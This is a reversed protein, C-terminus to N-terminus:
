TPEISQLHRGVAIRSGLWGLGAGLGLLLLGKDSGLGYIEFRSGYLTALEGAPGALLLVSLEVLLWASAAGLFGQIAGAYLFPRRIFAPTAGILKTIAIEERRNLVALRITNGVILLVALGLVGALMWVGREAINLIAHLRRVWELDLQMLDVAPLKWLEEALAHLADPAIHAAAPTVVLVGPLPNRDLADLAAGFGSGARFEALAADPSLYDVRALDKRGRLEAALKEAAKVSVDRKLFLSVQGSAAIRGGARQLNDVTVYLGAPLALAIGIVAISMFSTLPARALAGLTSFFVQLHRLVYQKM